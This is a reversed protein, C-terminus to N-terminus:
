ALFPIRHVLELPLDGDDGARGAADAPRQRISERRLAHAHHHGVDLVVRELDGGLLDARAAGLHERNAGVHGLSGGHIRQGRAGDLLEAREVDHAVVGTDTRAAGHPLEALGVPRPDEAHVQPADDVPYAREHRPEDLLVLAM